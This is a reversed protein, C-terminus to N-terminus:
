TSIYNYGALDHWLIGSPLAFPAVLCNVLVTHVLKDVALASFATIVIQVVSTHWAKFAVLHTAGETAVNRIHVSHALILTLTSFPKDASGSIRILGCWRHCGCAVGENV